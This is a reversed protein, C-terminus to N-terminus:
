SQKTENWDDIFGKALINHIIPGGHFYDRAYGIEERSRAMHVSSDEIFCPVSHEVCIQQIARKNKESNILANESAAFWNNLFVDNANWHDSMGQPMYSMVPVYFHAPCFDPDMFVEVRHTPPTLMCVLKCNLQTIWYRLMRYCSDASFGNWALNAVKLGTGQGVLYPWTSEVPLGSGMTYSCGLAIMCESNDFEDCRFGHSNISYTIAGPRNWGQQEFYAWHAPDKILEQYREKTDTPLWELTQGAVTLGDHYLERNIKTNGM